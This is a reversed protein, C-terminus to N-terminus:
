AARESRQGLLFEVEHRLNPPLAEEARAVCAAYLNARLFIEKLSPGFQERIPLRRAGPARKFVGRHGSRMTAIFASRYLATGGGPVRATVGPGRGRSPEPGRAGFAILPIRRGTVQMIAQPRGEAARTLAVASRIVKQTLGAERSLGRVAVTAVSTLTKNLARVVAREADTGLQQLARQLADRGEVRVDISAM